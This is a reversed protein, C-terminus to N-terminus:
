KFFGSKGVPVKPAEARFVPVPPRARTPFPQTLQEPIASPTDDNTAPVVTTKQSATKAYRNAVYFSALSLLGILATKKCENAFSPGEDSSPQPVPQRTVVCPKKKPPPPSQDEDSSSDEDNEVLVPMKPPPTKPTQQPPPQPPTTASIRQELSCLRKEREARKKKAQSRAEALQALHKEKKELQAPTRPSEQTVAPTVNPESNTTM